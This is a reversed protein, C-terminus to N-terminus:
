FDLSKGEMEATWSLCVSLRAPLCVSLPLFPTKGAPPLLAAAAAAAAAPQPHRAPPEHRRLAARLRSCTSASLRHSGGPREPIGFLLFLYVFVEEVPTSNKKRKERTRREQNKTKRKERRRWAARWVSASQGPSIWSGTPTTQPKRGAGGSSVLSCRNTQPRNECAPATTGECMAALSPRLQSFVGHRGDSNVEHGFSLLFTWLNKTTTAM